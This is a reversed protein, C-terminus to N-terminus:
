LVSLHNSKKQVASKLNCLKNPSTLDGSKYIDKKKSTSSKKHKPLEKGASYCDKPRCLMWVAYSLKQLNISKDKTRTKKNRKIESM